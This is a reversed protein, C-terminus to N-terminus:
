FLHWQDQEVGQGKAYMEALHFQALAEGQKALHSFIELAKAHDGGRLALLGADLDSERLLDSVSKQRIAPRGFASALDLLAVANV